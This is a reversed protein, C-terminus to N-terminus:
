SQPIFNEVTIAWREHDRWEGNIKLYYKSYGEKQFGSNKVLHISRYNEPQINAEVRHLNMEFFVKKLVLALGAQMYGKGTYEAVGYFGLYASQFVGRVIENLNFVGVIDGAQDCVLFSKQNDQRYRQLYNKFEESTQPATVWPYHLARSNQMATLFKDEDDRKPEQISVIPKKIITM